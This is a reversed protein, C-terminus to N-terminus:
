YHITVNVLVLVTGIYTNVLFALTIVSISVGNNDPSTLFLATTWVPEMLIYIKMRLVNIVVFNKHVLLSRTLLLLV